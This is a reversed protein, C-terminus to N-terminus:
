VLAWYGIPGNNVLGKKKLTTLHNSVQQLQGEEDRGYMELAIESRHIPRGKRDALFDLIRQQAYHPRAPKPDEDHGPTKLIGTLAKIKEGWAIMLNERNKLASAIDAKAAVIDAKVNAMEDELSEFRDVADELRAVADEVQEKAMPIETENMYHLDGLDAAQKKTVKVGVLDLIGKTASSNM